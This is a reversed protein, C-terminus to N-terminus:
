LRRFSVARSDGENRMESRWCQHNMAMQHPLELSSVYRGSLGQAPHMPSRGCGAATGVRAGTGSQLVLKMAPGVRGQGSGTNFEWLGSSSEPEQGHPKGAYVECQRAQSGQLQLFSSTYRQWRRTGRSSGCSDLYVLRMGAMCIPSKGLSEAPMGGVERTHPMM